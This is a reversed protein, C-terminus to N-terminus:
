PLPVVAEAAILKKMEAALEQDSQHVLCIDFGFVPRSQLHGMYNIANAMGGDLDIRGFFRGPDDWVFATRYGATRATEFLALARAGVDRIEALGSGALELEFYLPARLESGALAAGIVELDMGDIDLKLLALRGAEDILDAIAAGGGSEGFPQNVPKATGGYHFLGRPQQDRSPLVFAKRATAHASFHRRINEELYPFFFDSAEVCLIDFDSHRHLLACSDGVNAGIDLATGSRHLNKLARAVLILGAERYPQYHPSRPDCYNLLPHRSPLSLPYGAIEFPVPVQNAFEPASLM